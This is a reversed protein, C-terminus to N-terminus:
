KFEFVDSSSQNIKNQKDIFWAYKSFTWKKLEIVGKFNDECKQDKLM